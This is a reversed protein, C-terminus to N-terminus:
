DAWSDTPPTFDFTTSSIAQGEKIDTFRVHIESGFSDMTVIKALQLPEKTFVLSLSGEELENSPDKMGLTVKVWDDAQAYNQIILDESNLSIEDRTLISPLGANLPLQTAQETEEDYFYLKAGTSVLKQKKPADYQWLFQRPRNLYFKGNAFDQGPIIQEFSAEYTSLTSLYSEIDQLPLTDEAMAFSSSLSMCFIAFYTTIKKMPQM